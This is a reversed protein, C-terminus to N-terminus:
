PTGPSKRRVLAPARRALSWGRRLADVVPDWHTILLFAQFTVIGSLVQFLNLFPILVLFMPIITIIWITRTHKWLIMVLGFTEMFVAIWTLPYFLPKPWHLFFNGYWLHRSPNFNLTYYFASGNLWAPEDITLKGQASYAFGAALLLWAGAVILRPIRWGPRVKDLRVSEGHPIFVSALLLWQVYTSEPTTTEPNRNFCWFHILFIVAAVIRRQFGVSYLIACVFVIGILLYVLWVYDLQLVWLPLVSRYAITEPRIMGERSYLEQAFPAIRLTFFAVYIGFWIRWFAFRQGLRPDPPAELFEVVRKQVKDKDILSM